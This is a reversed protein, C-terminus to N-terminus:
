EPPCNLCSQQMNTQIRQQAAMKIAETYMNKNPIMGNLVEHPTLSYLASHPKNNYAPVAWQLFRIVQYIDFLKERFLFDYKMRKNVAEVM